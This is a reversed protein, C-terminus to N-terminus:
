DREDDCHSACKLHENYELLHILQSTEPLLLTILSSYISTMLDVYLIHQKLLIIVIIFLLVNIFIYATQIISWLIAASRMIRM